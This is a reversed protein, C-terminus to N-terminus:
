IAAGASPLLIFRASGSAHDFAPRYYTSRGVPVLCILSFMVNALQAFTEHRIVDMGAEGDHYRLIQRIAPAGDVVCAERHEVSRVGNRASAEAVSRYADDLDGPAATMKTMVRAGPEDTDDLDDAYIVSNTEPDEIQEEFGVPLEISVRTVWSFFHIYEPTEMSYWYLTINILICAYDGSLLRRSKTSM